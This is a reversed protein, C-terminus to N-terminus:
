IKNRVLASQKLLQLQETISLDCALDNDRLWDPNACAYAHVEDVHVSEHYGMDAMKTFIPTLQNIHDNVVKEAAKRYQPDIYYLAHCIEHELADSGENTGIVYFPQSEDSFAAILKKERDSLPDFDGRKFSDFVFSPVNFGSWDDVYSFSGHETAYWKKFEELSFTSGRFRPSEYHEQFRLFSLALDEQTDFSVLWVGQLIQKKHM